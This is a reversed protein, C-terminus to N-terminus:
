QDCFAAAGWSAVYHIGNRRQGLHGSAYAGTASYRGFGPGMFHLFERETNEPIVVFATDYYGLYEDGELKTETLIDGSIYRFLGKPVREELLDAISTGERVQFYGRKHPLIGEGAISIVRELYPVGHMLHHGICLVDLTNLTWVIDDPSHIPDIHHIHVSHNAVPHPGEATYIDVKEAHVFASSDSNVHHVLHVSGETLYTM